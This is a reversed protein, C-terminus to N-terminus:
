LMWVEVEDGEALETVDGPVHVLSNARALAHVLHSGAGGEMRVTGNSEVTGRRVQHKGEPSTLPESLRARLVPRPAPTGLVQTLAPRLFMEFSILCSVPNGPFGLFPVGDFTGLGQPGGPQMAVPLFEVPQDAMAQKVVEYAGKSVGGTTVILDVRDAGTGTHRRLVALLAAPRDDSIGARVVELGAQRMSAELLTGNSDFIKGSTLDQGPEVVEDGTTVLLVRCPQRIDVTTLGLAAMLGLQAPGMLTGAALALTGKGIDSGRERIYTGPAAPPLEVVADKVAPDPFTNPIAKEIPVVADAGEPIMAGTMIPAAFGPKLAPAAAGAPVPEAVRLEAGGDPIDASRVAFGDMQSNAFPPLSLPAYLDVALVKGLAELLPLTLHGKNAPVGTLLEVVAQHHAAVSRPVSM